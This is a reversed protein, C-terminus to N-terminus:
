ATLSWTTQFSWDDVVAFLHKVWQDSHLDGRFVLWLLASLAFIGAIAIFYRFLKSRKRRYHFAFQISGAAMAGAIFPYVRGLFYVLHM